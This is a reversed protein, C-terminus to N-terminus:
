TISTAIVVCMDLSMRIGREPTRDFVAGGNIFCLFGKMEMREGMGVLLLSKITVKVAALIVGCTRIVQFTM